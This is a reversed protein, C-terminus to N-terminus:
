EKDLSCDLSSDVSTSDKWVIDASINERYIKVPVDDDVSEKKGCLSFFIETVENGKWKRGISYLGLTGDAFGVCVTGDDGSVTMACPVKGLHCQGIKRGDLVEIVNLVPNAHYDCRCHSECGQCLYILYKGDKTLHQYLVANPTHLICLNQEQMSLVNVTGGETIILVDGNSSTKTVAQLLNLQLSKTLFPLADPELHVMSICQGSKRCWVFLSSVNEVAAIIEEGSYSLVCSIFKEKLRISFNNKEWTLTEWVDFTTPRCILLRDPSYETSIVEDHGDVSNVVGVLQPKSPDAINWITINGAKDIVYVDTGQIYVDCIVHKLHDMQLVIKRSFFETNYIILTNTQGLTTYKGNDVIAFYTLKEAFIIEKLIKGSLVNFVRVMPTNEFYVILMENCLTCGKPMFDVEQATNSIENLLTWTFCDLLIISGQRTSLALYRGENELSAGIIESGNISQYELCLRKRRSWTYVFGRQLVIILQSKTRMELLSVITSPQQFQIKIVPLKFVSSNLIVLFSNKISEYFIQKVFTLLCPYISALPMIKSQVIMEFAKPHDNLLCRTEKLLDCILYVEEKGMLMAADEMSHILSNLHGSKLLTKYYPLAMFVDTYLIDLQGCEKLHYPLELAKRVNGIDTRGLHGNFSWPQSPLRRDIYIKALPDSGTTVTKSQQADRQPRNNQKGSISKARGSVWRGSFYNCMHAHLKHVVEPSKLYRKSVVQQYLRNTWTILRYGAVVRYAICGELDLLINAVLWDPVRLMELAEHVHYLQALVVDDASLLDVLEAEGTGSRSLTVYSLARFIFEYGYKNELKHFLIETSQYASEGLCQDGVDHHSKWGMVEKYLLLVQLPTTCSGLSRNVYIQQGSTIKRQENLLNKKLNDNCEKRTPKLELFLVQDPRWPLTQNVSNDRTASVIIKTFQPLPSPLWWSPEGNRECCMLNDVSDLLLVLPRQGTSASLLSLFREALVIIDDEQAPIQIRFINALQQCLGRILGSLTLPEGFPPVFRVVLAPDFDKLWLQVKKACSALLVTKGCGPEGLVVMPKRSGDCLIYSKISEAARSEYQQLNAYMTCLSLHELGEETGNRLPAPHRRTGRNILTVMDAYFQGCLGEVYQQKKEKTYGVKIDCTTNTSYVHLGGTRSLAPILVDRLRCLRAYGDTIVGESREAKGRQKRFAKYPVKHIYCVCRELLHQRCNELVFLLEEELASTFYKRAQKHGLIGKQVCLPVVTDFIKGIDHTVECMWDPSEARQRRTCDPLEESDLLSYVPPIANEDRHYWTQLLKTCVRHEEATHVINDFEECDILTPLCCKGYEEGILAVFCPGASSLVCEELLQMRNRRVSSSYLDDPHIGDYGDLVQIELGLVHRCYERLKPYVETRLAARERESELPDACLFVKVTGRDEETPIRDFDGCLIAQNIVEEDEM